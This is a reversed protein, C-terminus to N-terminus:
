RQNINPCSPSDTRAPGAALTWFPDQRNGTVRVAVRESRRIGRRRDDIRAAIDLADLAKEGVFPQGQFFDEDGVARRFPNEVAGM